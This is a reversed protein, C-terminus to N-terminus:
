AAYSLHERLDQVLAAAMKKQQPKAKKKVELLRLPLFKIYVYSSLLIQKLKTLPAMYLLNSFLGFLRAM